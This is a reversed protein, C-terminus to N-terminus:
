QRWDDYRSKKIELLKKISQDCRKAEERLPDEICIVGALKGEIAM